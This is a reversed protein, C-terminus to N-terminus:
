GCFDYESTSGREPLVQTQPCDVTFSLAPPSQNTVYFQDSVPRTRIHIRTFPGDFPFVSLLWTSTTEFLSLFSPGFSFNPGSPSLLTWLCQCPFMSVNRTITRLTPSCPDFHALQRLAMVETVFEPSDLHKNDHPGKMWVLWHNPAHICNNKFGPELTFLHSPSVTERAHTWDSCMKGSGIVYSWRGKACM